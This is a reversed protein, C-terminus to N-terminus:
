VPVPGCAEGKRACGLSQNRRLPLFLPPLARAQIDQMQGVKSRTIHIIRFCYVTFVEIYVVSAQRVGSALLVCISPASLSAPLESAREPAPLTRVNRATAISSGLSSCSFPRASSRAWVCWASRRVAPACWRTLDISWCFCARRVKIFLAEVMTLYSQFAFMFASVLLYVWAYLM